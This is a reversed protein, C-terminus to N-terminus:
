TLGMLILHLRFAFDSTSMHSENDSNGIQKDLLTVGFDSFIFITGFIFCFTSSGSALCDDMIVQILLLVRWLPFSPNVSLEFFRVLVVLSSKSTTDSATETLFVLFVVVVVVDLHLLDHSAEGVEVLNKTWTATLIIIVVVIIVFVCLIGLVLVTLSEVLVIVVLWCLAGGVDGREPLWIGADLELLDVENLWLLEVFLEGVVVVPLDVLFGLFDVDISEKGLKLGSSCSLRRARCSQAM